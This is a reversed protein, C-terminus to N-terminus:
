AVFGYTQGDNDQYTPRKWGRDLLLVLILRSGAKTETLHTEADLWGGFGTVIGYIGDRLATFANWVEIVPVLWSKFLVIRLWSAASKCPLFPLSINKCGHKICELTLSMLSQYMLNLWECKKM